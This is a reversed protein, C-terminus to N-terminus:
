RSFSISNVNGQSGINYIDEKVRDVIRDVDYDSGIEGVNMNFEVYIDHGLNNVTTGQNGFMSPLVEALRLFADTQRANLVYEPERPTGDLWAPGTYSALGGTAYQYKETTLSSNPILAWIGASLNDFGESIKLLYAGAQNASTILENAWVERQQESMAKWDEADRLIQELASGGVLAGDESLGSELLTAVEPWLAGTEKWYDLQATLLSIQKERQEAAKDNSEQLRNISQDILTDAYNQRAEELQKELARIESENAGTTDRRLYALRAEMDRINNETDTNDRIQRQLEIEHQLSNLIANNSDNLTDNLQSM